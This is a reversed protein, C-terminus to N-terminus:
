GNVILWLTSLSLYLCLPSYYLSDYKSFETRRIKKFFGVIKFDGVARLLFLVVVVWNGIRYFM